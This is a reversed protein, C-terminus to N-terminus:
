QVYTTQKQGVCIFRIMWFDLRSMYMYQVHLGVITNRPTSSLMSEVSDLEFGPSDCWLILALQQMLRVCDYSASTALTVLGTGLKNDVHKCIDDFIIEDLLATERSYRM